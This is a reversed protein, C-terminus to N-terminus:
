KIEDLKSIIDKKIAELSDARLGGGAWDKLGELGIMVLSWMDGPPFTGMEESDKKIVTMEEDQYIIDKYKKM